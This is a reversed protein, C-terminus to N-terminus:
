LLRHTLGISTLLTAVLAMGLALMAAGRGFRALGLNRHTVRPARVGAWWGGLALVAVAVSAGIVSLYDNVKFNRAYAANLLLELAFIFSLVGAFSAVAGLSANEDGEPFSQHKRKRGVAGGVASAFFDTIIEM